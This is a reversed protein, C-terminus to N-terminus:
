SMLIHETRQRKRNQTTVRAVGLDVRQSKIRDIGRHKAHVFDDTFVTGAAIELLEILHFCALPLALMQSLSPLAEQEVFWSHQIDVGCHLRNEPMLFTCLDAVVRMFGRAGTMGVVSVPDRSQTQLQIHLHTRAFLDGTRM